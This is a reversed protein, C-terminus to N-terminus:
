RRCPEASTALTERRMQILKDIKDKLEVQFRDNLISEEKELGLIKEQYFYIIHRYGLLNTPFAMKNLAFVGNFAYIIPYKGWLTM